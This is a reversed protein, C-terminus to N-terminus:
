EKKNGGKVKINWFPCIEKECRYSEGDSMLGCNFDYDEEDEESFDSWNTQFSCERKPEEPECECESIPYGCEECEEEEKEESTVFKEKDKEEERNGFNFIGM